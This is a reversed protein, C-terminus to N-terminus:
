EESKGFAGLYARGVKEELTKETTACKTDM